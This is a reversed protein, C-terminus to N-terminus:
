NMLAPVPRRAGGRGGGRGGSRPAWAQPGDPGYETPGWAVSRSAAAAASPNGARGAQGGRDDGAARGARQRDAQDGKSARCQAAVQQGLVFAPSGPTAGETLAPGFDSAKGPYGRGWNDCRLTHPRSVMNCPNRTRAGFKFTGCWNCLSYRRAADHMRECQENWCPTPGERRGPQGRAASAAGTPWSGYPEGDYCFGDPARGCGPGEDPGHGYGGGAGHEYGAPGPGSLGSDSVETLLVRGGSEALDESRRMGALDGIAKRRDASGGFRKILGLAGEADRREFRDGPAQFLLGNMDCVTTTLDPDKDRYNLSM